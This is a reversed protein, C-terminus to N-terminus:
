SRGGAPPFSSGPGRFQHQALQTRAEDWEQCARHAARARAFEEGLAVAHTLAEALSTHGGEVSRTLRAIAKALLRREDETNHEPMM